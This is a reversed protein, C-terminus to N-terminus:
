FKGIEFNKLLNKFNEIEGGTKEILIKLKKLENFNKSKGKEM